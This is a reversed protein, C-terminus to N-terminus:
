MLLIPLVHTYSPGTPLKIAYQSCSFKVQLHLHLHLPKSDSIGM